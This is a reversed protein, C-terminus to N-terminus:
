TNTLLYHITWIENSQFYNIAFQELITVDFGCLSFQIKSFGSEVKPNVLFSPKGIAGLKSNEM